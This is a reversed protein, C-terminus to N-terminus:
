SLGNCCSRPLQDDWKQMEMLRCVANGFQLNILIYDTDYDMQFITMYEITSCQIVLLDLNRANTRRKVKQLIPCLSNKLDRLM